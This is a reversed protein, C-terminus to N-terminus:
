NLKTLQTSLWAIVFYFHKRRHTSMKGRLFLTFINTTSAHPPTLTSTEKLDTVSHLPQDM